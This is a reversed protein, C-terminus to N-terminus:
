MPASVKRKRRMWGAMGLGGALLALTGPEPVETVTIRAVQYGNATFDANPFATLIPGGPIFGGHLAVVGGEATGTDAVMQGLVPTDAAAETNVETGADYIQSGLIMISQGNVNGGDRVKYATPNGNGFFADNSPLLMSAFSLYLDTAGTGLDLVIEGSGGPGFIPPSGAGIGPGFIVGQMGSSFLTGLPGPNGDEALRELQASAPAGADFLDFSGDHVGVWLPTFLTGNTPALNEIKIKILAAHAAPAALLAAGSLALLTTLRMTPRM